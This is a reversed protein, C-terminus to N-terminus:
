RPAGREFGGLLGERSSRRGSPRGRSTGRGRWLVLAANTAPSSNGMSSFISLDEEQQLAARRDAPVLKEGVLALAAAMMSHKRAM